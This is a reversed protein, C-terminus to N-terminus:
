NLQGRKSLRYGDAVVYKARIRQGRKHCDDCIRGGVEDIRTPPREMCLYCLKGARVQPNGHQNGGM